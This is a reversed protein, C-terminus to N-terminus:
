QKPVFLLNGDVHGGIGDITCSNSFQWYDVQYLFSPALKETKKTKYEPLWRPYPDIAEQDYKIYGVYNSAYIMPTYGAEEIRQCFAIACATAVEPKTGYVRYTADHM